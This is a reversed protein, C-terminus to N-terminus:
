RSRQPPPERFQSEAANFEALAARRLPVVTGAADATSDPQQIRAGPLRTEVPTKLMVAGSQDWRLLDNRVTTYHCSLKYAIQRLTLGEARLEVAREMRTARKQKARGPFPQGPHEAQWRALDYDVTACRLRLYKAVRRKSGFRGYWEAVAKRRDDESKWDRANM